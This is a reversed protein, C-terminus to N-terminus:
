FEARFLKCNVKELLHQKLRNLQQLAKEKERCADKLDRAMKRISLEMEEKGPFDRSQVELMNYKNDLHLWM